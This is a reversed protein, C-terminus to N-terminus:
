RLADHFDAVETIAGLAFDGAGVHRRGHPFKKRTLFIASLRTVPSEQVAKFLRNLTRKLQLKGQKPAGSNRTGARDRLGLFFTQSFINRQKTAM